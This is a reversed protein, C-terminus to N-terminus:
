ISWSLKRVLRYSTLVAQTPDQIYSTSVVQLVVQLITTNTGSTTNTTNTTILLVNRNGREISYIKMFYMEQKM